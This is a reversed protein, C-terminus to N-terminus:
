HQSGTAVPLQLLLVLFHHDELILQPSCHPGTLRPHYCLITGSSAKVEKWGTRRCCRINARRRIQAERKKDDKNVKAAAQKVQQQRPSRDPWALLNERTPAAAKGQKNQVCDLGWLLSTSYRKDLRSKRM